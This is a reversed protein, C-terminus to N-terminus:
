IHDVVFKGSRIGLFVPLLYHTHLSEMTKGQMLLKRYPLLATVM